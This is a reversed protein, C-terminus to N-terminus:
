PIYLGTTREIKRRYRLITRETVGMATAIQAWTRKQDLRLRAILTIIKEDDVKPQFAATPADTLGTFAPPLKHLRRYLTPRSIGLIRAIEVKTLGMDILKILDADKIRKTKGM